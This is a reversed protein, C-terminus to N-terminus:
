NNRGARARLCSNLDRFPQWHVLIQKTVKSESPIVTVDTKSASREDRV